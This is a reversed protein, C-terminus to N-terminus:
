SPSRDEEALRWEPRQRSGENVIVGSARLAALVNSVRKSKQQESLEHPLKDVLLEDLDSRTASGFKTLYDVVLKRQYDGDMARARVYEVRSGTVNAVAASVHLNPRRGEALGERRLHDATKKSVPLRKQVHDLALIDEFPLDTRVMLMQSYALDIVAGLITLRVEGPTSLDYDPLPLFRRAQDRAIRHIGFGMHDILNLATMASVLVPNRYDGPTRQDLIYQDPTGDFFEGASRFEVRDSYETVLIRSNRTYDQHAICNDIAELLSREDYKSIERYILEDPPMLRIQVNRIRKMLDTAALLFPPHFHEYAREEGKLFWTMEAM